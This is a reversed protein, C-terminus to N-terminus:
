RTCYRDFVIGGFKLLTITKAETIHAPHRGRPPRHAASRSAGRGISGGVSRHLGLCELPDVNPVVTKFADDPDGLVTNVETTRQARWWREVVANVDERESRGGDSARVHTGSTQGSQWWPHCSNAACHVPRASGVLGVALSSSSSPVPLRAVHTAFFQCASCAYRMGVLHGDCEDCHRSPFVCSFLPLCSSSNKPHSLPDDAFCKRCM